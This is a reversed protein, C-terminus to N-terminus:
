DSPRETVIRGTNISLWKTPQGWEIPDNGLGLAKM